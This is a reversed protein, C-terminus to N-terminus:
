DRTHGQDALSLILSIYAHLIAIKKPRTQPFLLFFSLYDYFFRFLGLESVRAYNM